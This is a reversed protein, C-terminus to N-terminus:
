DRWLTRVLRYLPPKKRTPRSELEDERPSKAREFDIDAQTTTVTFDPTGRALYDACLTHVQRHLSMIQIRMDAICYIDTM